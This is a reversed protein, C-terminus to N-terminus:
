IYPVSTHRVSISRPSDLCSRDEECIGGLAQEDLLVLRGQSKYSAWAKALEPTGTGPPEFRLGSFHLQASANQNRARRCLYAM